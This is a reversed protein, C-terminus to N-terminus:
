RAVAPVETKAPIDGSQQQLGERRGRMEHQQETRITKWQEMQASTLISAFQQERYDDVPKFTSKDPRSDGTMLAQRRKAVEINVALIKTHQDASLGLKQQMKDTMFAAREEPSMKMRAHMGGRDANDANQAMAPSFAFAIGLAFLIKKM